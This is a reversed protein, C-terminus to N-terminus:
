LISKSKFVSFRIGAQAAIFDLSTRLSANSQSFVSSYGGQIFVTFSDSLKYDIGIGGRIGFGFSPQITQANYRLITYKDKIVDSPYSSHVKNQDIYALRPEVEGYYYNGNVEFFLYPNLKGTPFLKYKLDLGLGFNTFYSYYNKSEEKLKEDSGNSIPNKYNVALSAIFNLGISFNPNLNYQGGALIQYGSTFNPFVYPVNDADVKSGLPIFYGGGVNFSVKKDFQASAGMPLVLVSLVLLFGGLTTNVVGKNM